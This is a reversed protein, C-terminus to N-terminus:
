FPYEPERDRLADADQDLDCPIYVPKMQSRGAMEEEVESRTRPSAFYLNEAMIEFNTRRIGDRDTWPSVVIRGDVTVVYGRRFSSAAFEANNRWAVINIFDCQRDEGAKCYDRDVAVTFSCVPVHQQNTHRLVPDRVIRGTVVAKNLM